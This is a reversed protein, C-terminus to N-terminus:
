GREVKQSRIVSELNLFKMLNLHCKEVLEDLEIKRVSSVFQAVEALIEQSDSVTFSDSEILLLEIPVVEIVQKLRQPNKYILDRGLSLYLGRNIFDEAKKASGCFGHVMGKQPINFHDLMEVFETHARVVHYILPKNVFQALEMQSVLLDRQQWELNKLIAPRFDLGTEGIAMISHDISRAMLDLDSEIQQMFQAETLEEALQTLYEPHLGVSCGWAQPQSQFIKKQLAWDEPKIGAMLRFTPNPEDCSLNEFVESSAHFHADAQPLFKALM